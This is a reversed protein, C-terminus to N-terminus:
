HLPDDTKAEKTLVDKVIQRAYKADEICDPRLEEFDDVSIYLRGEQTEIFEVDKDLLFMKWEPANEGNSFPVFVRGETDYYISRTWIPSDPPNAIIICNMRLNEHQYPM